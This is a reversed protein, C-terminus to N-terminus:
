TDDIFTTLKRFCYAANGPCDNQNLSDKALCLALDPSSVVGEEGFKMQMIKDSNKMQMIKDTNKTQM